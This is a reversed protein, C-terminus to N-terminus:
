INTSSQQGQITTESLAPSSKADNGVLFEATPVLSAAIWRLTDVSTLFLSELIPSPAGTLDIEAIAVDHDDDQNTFEIRALKWQEQADEILGALWETGPTRERPIDNVITVRLSFQSELHNVEIQRVIDGIQITRSGLWNEVDEASPLQPAKPPRGNRTALAWDVCARLTPDDDDPSAARNNALITEPLTFHQKAPTTPTKKWLGPKGLKGETPEATKPFTSRLTLWGKRNSFSTRGKKFDNGSKKFGVAELTRTRRAAETLPHPAQATTAM